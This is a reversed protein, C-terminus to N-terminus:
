KENDRYWEPRKTAMRDTLDSYVKIQLCMRLLHQTVCAAPVSQIRMCCKFIKYTAQSVALETVCVSM